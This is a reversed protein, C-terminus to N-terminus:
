RAAGEIDTAPVAVPEGAASATVAVGTGAGPAGKGAAAAQEAETEKRHKRRLATAMVLFLLILLLLFFFGGIAIGIIAGNGLSAAGSSASSSSSETTASGTSTGVVSDINASGTNGALDTYADESVAVTIASAGNTPEVVVIFTSNDDNGSFSTIEGNTVDISSENFGVVSESFEFILTESTTALLSRRAGTAAKISAWATSLLHRRATVASYDSPETSIITTNTDGTLKIITLFPPTIDYTISHVLVQSTAGTCSQPLYWVDVPETESNATVAVTYSTANLKAFNDPDLSGPGTVAMDCTGNSCDGMMYPRSYTLTGLVQKYNVYTPMDLSATPMCAAMALTTDCPVGYCMITGNYTANTTSPAAAITGLGVYNTDGSMGASEDFLAAMASTSAADLLHRSGVGYHLAQVSATAGWSASLASCLAAIALRQM